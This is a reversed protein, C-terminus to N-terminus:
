NRIPVFSELGRPVRSWFQSHEEIKLLQQGSVELPSDVHFLSLFLLVIPEQFSSLESVLDIVVEIILPVLRREEENERDM